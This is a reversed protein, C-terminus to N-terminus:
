PLIRQGWLGTRIQRRSQKTAQFRRMGGIQPPGAAMLAGTLTGHNGNGSYDRADRGDVLPHLITPRSRVWHHSNMEQVVAGATLAAGVWVKFLGVKGDGFGVGSASQGMLTFIATGADGLTAPVTGAFTLTQNIGNIYIKQRTANTAQSGDYVYAIHVWVRVALVAGGTVGTITGDGHYVKVDNTDQVLTSAHTSASVKQVIGQDGTVTDPNYWLMMTLASAGDVGALDGYDIKDDM